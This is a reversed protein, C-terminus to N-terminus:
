GDGLPHDLVPKVDRVFVVPRIDHVAYQVRVRDIVATYLVLRLVTFDESPDGAGRPDARLRAEIRAVTAAWEAALGAAAARQDLRATQLAAQGVFSVEFWDTPEPPM